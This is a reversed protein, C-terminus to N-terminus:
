NQKLVKRTDKYRGRALLFRPSEIYFMIIYDPTYWLLLIYPPAWPPSQSCDVLARFMEDGRKIRPNAFYLFELQCSYFEQFKGSFVCWCQQMQQVTADTPSNCRNCRNCICWNQILDTASNCRNCRNCLALLVAVSKAVCSELRASVLLPKLQRWILM